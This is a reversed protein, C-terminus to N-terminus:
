EVMKRWSKGKWQLMVTPLASGGVILAIIVGLSKVLGVNNLLPPFWFPGIFGWVQRVLTVFVGISTAEQPHCDVAYTILVTTVIQNGAAAIGVGVTPTINWTEGAKDLQVLFVVIGIISLTYGFYSLWLRYEQAIARKQRMWRDSLHGGVQEGLLTGIIVAGFQLGVEQTNQHFKEVYLQPIEITPFVNALNFVMSYAIAPIAVCPFAGVRLPKIFDWITLPTQGMRRFHVLSKVYSSPVQNDEGRIYRTESGFVFYLILQLANTIALTWYIWRYGVRLAVFGFIFPAVPVGLTVFMTWVGLYRGREHKFFMEQVMGSGIAAAPSIGFATIARCLAMTSYTPSKACGVNGVLSIVLSCLLIPRRGFRNALPRWFIPAVGLVAIVLSVLYSVQPITRDLDISIDEFASQIAAATFTAMFAHFAIFFLNLWKKPRPWNLPDADNHDPFPELEHTGHREIAYERHASSIALEPSEKYDENLQSELKEDSKISTPM